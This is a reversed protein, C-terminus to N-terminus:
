VNSWVISVTYNGNSYVGDDISAEADIEMAGNDIAIKVFLKEAQAVVEQSLQEEFVGFSVISKVPIETTSEIVNIVRM